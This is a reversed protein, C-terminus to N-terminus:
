EHTAAETGDGGWAADMAAQIEDDTATVPSDTVRRGGKAVRRRDQERMRREWLLAAQLLERDGMNVGKACTEQVCVCQHMNLVRAGRVSRWLM